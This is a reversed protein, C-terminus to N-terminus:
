RYRTKVQGWTTTKTPTVQFCADDFTTGVGLNDVSATFNAAGSPVATAPQAAATSSQRLAFASVVVATGSAATQSISTSAESAPNVWMKATLSSPEYKIVITYPVNYNLSGVSWPVAGVTTASTSGVSLGFTYGPGGAVPLVYARAPFNTTGTDKFHAFYVAKPSAGPDPVVVEFCAYTPTGTQAAFSRNEDASAAMSANARGSVVSLPAAGSHMVWTGGSVVALDGDAYSFAESLLVTASATSAIASCFALAALATAFKKM